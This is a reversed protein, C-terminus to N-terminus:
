LKREFEGRTDLRLFLLSLSLLTPTLFAEMYEQSLLFESQLDQSDEQDGLSSEQGEVELLSKYVREILSQNTKLCEFMYNQVEPRTRFWEYYREKRSEKYNYTDVM